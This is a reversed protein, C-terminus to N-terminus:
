EVVQIEQPEGRGAVLLFGQMELRGQTGMAIILQLTEPYYAQQLDTASPVPEGRPHSHYIAVLERGEERIKRFIEIQAGPDALFRDEERAINAVPHWHSVTRGHGSLLGVCEGPAARQAHGLIKNLVPRPIQWM